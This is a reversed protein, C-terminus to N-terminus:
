EMGPFLCYKLSLFKVFVNLVINHKAYSYALVKAWEKGTRAPGEINLIEACQRWLRAANACAEKSRVRGLALDQHGELFEIMLELQRVTTCRRADM